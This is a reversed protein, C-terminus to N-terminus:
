IGVGCATEPVLRDGLATVMWSISRMAINRRTRLATYFHTRLWSRAYTRFGRFSGRVDSFVEAHGFASRNRSYNLVDTVTCIAQIKAIATCSTNTVLPLLWEATHETASVARRQSESIIRSSATIGLHDQLFSAGTTLRCIDYRADSKRLSHIRPNININHLGLPRPDSTILGSLSFGQIDIAPLGSTLCTFM